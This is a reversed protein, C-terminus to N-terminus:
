SKIYKPVIVKAPIWATLLGILLSAAFVAIFNEIRMSMPYTDVIFSGTQAIKLWGFKMQLFCLIAGLLMGAISGLGSILWGEYLFIRKILDASMGMNQLIVVDKKKEIILMSLTAIVNFSAIILIFLLILFAVWKEMQSMKYFAEKQEHRDKVKYEQGMIAKVANITKATNSNEDIRVDIASIVNPEKILNQVYYLPAIICKSNIEEDLFFVGTPWIAEGKQASQTLASIKIDKYLAFVQIPEISKLPASLYYQVGAGILAGPLSESGMDFRGEIIGEEINTTEAYNSSVGKILAPLQRSQYSLLVNEELVGSVSLVGNISSLNNILTSDYAFFNKEAHKIQLDPDFKDYLSSMLDDIGNMTSLVLIMSMTSVVVGFWSIISIINVATHSKTAFLYRRAVLLPLNM